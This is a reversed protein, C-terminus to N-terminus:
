VIKVKDRVYYECNKIPKPRYERTLAFFMFVYPWTGRSVLYFFGMCLISINILSINFKSNRIGYIIIYYFIILGIIGNGFLITIFDSEPNWGINNISGVFYNRYVYGASYYGNGFITQLINQRSILEPMRLYYSIHISSSSYSDSIDTLRSFSMTSSILNLRSSIADREIITAVIALAILGIITYIKRTSIKTQRLRALLQILVVVGFAIYGSRSTSMIVAVAFLIKYITPKKLEFSLIYGVIMTLAFNATEWGLGKMRLFGGEVYNDWSYGNLGLINQFVLTNLLTGNASYLIEQLVGWLLNIVAGIWFGNYFKDKLLLDNDSGQNWFIAITFLLYKVLCTLSNRSWETPLISISIITSAFISLGFILTAISPPTLKVKSNGNHSSKAFRIVVLLILFINSISFDAIMLANM